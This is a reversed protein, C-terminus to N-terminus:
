RKRGKKQAKSALKKSRSKGDVKNRSKRIEAPKRIARYPTHADPEEELELYIDDRIDRVKVKLTDMLMLSSGSANNVYRMESERYDWRGSPFQEKLLVASIPIENLRVILGRATTSIIMGTFSEAVKNKMYIRSFLREIDREASDANLEQESAVASWRLLQQSSISEKSSKLLHIKALHHISLDCLRRIPSTFHTYDNLALGFHPIHRVSYKAKKMSRLILRDFVKHYDPSPLSSLLAQISLNLNAKPIYGIGYFSLLDILRDLKRQEPEEHIRYMSAPAKKSLANALYENAVLMFNEILKHSETELSLDLRHVFGEEDYIYEIEPLDFFIYGAAKRKATLLRSLLRAQNLAEALETSIGKAKGEFYEDVEEYALRINSRIVSEYLKQRLIQGQTDFQTYLSLCLKDEDPRLSCIQNSLKQPLMPIVLKPFYFSNGRKVAEAFCKSKLPVYHALDAIHVWLEFGQSNVKISIADDFDKASIPDITFTFLARLDKRCAIEEPPPTPSLPELEALVEDPFELPLNYERILAMMEAQPDGSPGLVEVIKGSPRKSFAPQGWDSVELILKEKPKAAALDTVEFWTYLKPNSPLFIYRDGTKSIEGAIYPNARELIKSVKAREKGERHDTITFSVKDRHFANLTDEADVFYDKEPTRIFAFSMNRSLPTADFIGEPTNSNAASKVPKKAEAKPKPMRKRIYNRGEKVIEGELCLQSLAKSTQFKDKGTIGLISCIENYSLGKVKNTDLASLIANNLKNSDTAKNTNKAM